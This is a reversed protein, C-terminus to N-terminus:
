SQEWFYCTPEAECVRMCLWVRMIVRLYLVRTSRVKWFVQSRVAQRNRTCSASEQLVSRYIFRGSVGFSFFAKQNHSRSIILPSTGGNRCSPVNMDKEVSHCEVGLHCCTCLHSVGPDLPAFVLFPLGRWRPGLSCYSYDFRTEGDRNVVVMPDKGVKGGSSRPAITSSTREVVARRCSRAVLEVRFV